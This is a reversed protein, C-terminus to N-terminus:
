YHDPARCRCVGPIAALPPADEGDTEGDKDDRDHRGDDTRDHEPTRCWSAGPGVTRLSADEDDADAEEDGGNRRRGDLRVRAARPADSRDATDMWAGSAGAGRRTAGQEPRFM